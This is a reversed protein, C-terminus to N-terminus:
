IELFDSTLITFFFVAITRSYPLFLLPCFPIFPSWLYFSFLLSHLLCLVTAIQVSQKVALSCAAQMYSAMRASRPCDM